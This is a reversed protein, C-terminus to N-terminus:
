EIDDEEQHLDVFQRLALAQETTLSVRPDSADVTRLRAIASALDVEYKARAQAAAERAPTAAIWALVTPWEVTRGRTDPLTADGVRFRQAGGRWQDAPSGLAYFGVGQAECYAALDDVTIGTPLDADTLNRRLLVADYLKTM